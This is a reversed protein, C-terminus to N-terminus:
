ALKGGRVGGSNILIGEESSFKALETFDTLPTEIGTHEQEAEVPEEPDEDSVLGNTIWSHSM